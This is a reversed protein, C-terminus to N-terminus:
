NTMGAFAPIWVTLLVKVALTKRNCKGEKKELGSDGRGIIGRTFNILYHV